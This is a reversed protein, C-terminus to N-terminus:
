KPMETAYLEWGNGEATMRLPGRSKGLKALAQESFVDGVLHVFFVRPPLDHPVADPPIRTPKHVALYYLGPDTNPRRVLLVAQGGPPLDGLSAKVDRWDITDMGLRRGDYGIVRMTANYQGAAIIAGAVMAMAVIRGPVSRCLHDLGLGLAIYVAPLMVLLNRTQHFPIDTFGMLAVVVVPVLLFFALLVGAPVRGGTGVAPPQRHGEMKRWILLVVGASLVCGAALLATTKLVAIEEEIVTADYGYTALTQRASPEIFRPFAVAFGAGGCVGVALVAWVLGAPVLRKTPEAVEVSVRRAAWLGLAAVALVLGVGAGWGGLGFLDVLSDAFGAPTLAALHNWETRTQVRIVPLWALYPLGAFGVALLLRLAPRRTAPRGTLWAAAVAHGLLVPVAFYHTLAAWAAVLYYALVLGRSRKKLSLVFLLHAVALLATVLAYQRAEASYTIHLPNVTLLVAAFVGAWPRGLAWGLAFVAMVAVVGALLPLGRVAAESTGFVANWLLFPVTMLPPHNTHFGDRAIVAAVSKPAIGQIRVAYLEDCDFCDDGIRYARLVLAVSAILLAMLAAAAIDKPRDKAVAAGTTGAVAGAGAVPAVRLMNRRPVDAM